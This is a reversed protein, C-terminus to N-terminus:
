NCLVAVSQGLHSSGWPADTGNVFIPPAYGLDDAMREIMPRELMMNLHPSSSSRRGNVDSMFTHWHGPEAVELFSFILKGRLRLVRKAEQMYLYSEAPLLHTFVSFATVYDASLDSSPLTLSRNLVFKYNSPSKTAAYDLLKQVIDIGTYDIELAKGLANALRGSGCGLDVVSQGNRLGAWRLIDREIQGVEEYGGGVAISMAEDIPHELVLRDVLKEYDEVFHYQAM